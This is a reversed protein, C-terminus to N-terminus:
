QLMGALPIIKEETCRDCCAKLLEVDPEDRDACAKCLCEGVEDPTAKKLRAVPTRQRMVHVCVIYWPRWSHDHCQILNHNDRKGAKKKKKKMVTRAYTTDRYQIVTALSLRPEM